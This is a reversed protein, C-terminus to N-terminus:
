PLRTSMYVTIPAGYDLDPKATLFDFWCINDDDCTILSGRDVCTYFKDLERVYAVSGLPYDVPCAIGTDLWSTYLDGNALHECEPKGDVEDCNYGGMPPYYWSYKGNIVEYTTELTEATPGVPSTTPELTKTPIPTNAQVPFASIAGPTPTNITQGINPETHKKVGIFEAFSGLMPRASYLWIGIVAIFAIFSAFSGFSFGDGSVVREHLFPRWQKPRTQWSIPVIPFYNCNPHKSWKQYATLGETTLETSTQKKSLIRSSIKRLIELTKVHISAM